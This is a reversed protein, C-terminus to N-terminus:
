GSRGMPHPNGIGILPSSNPFKCPDVQADSAQPRRGTSRCVPAGRASLHVPYVPIETSKRLLVSSPVRVQGRGTQGTQTGACAPWLSLSRPM